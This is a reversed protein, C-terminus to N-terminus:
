WVMAGGGWYLVSFHELADLVPICEQKYKADNSIETFLIANYFYTRTSSQVTSNTIMALLLIMAM